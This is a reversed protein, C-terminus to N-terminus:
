HGASIVAPFRKNCAKKPSVWGQPWVPLATCGRPTSRIRQSGCAPTLHGGGGQAASAGDQQSRRHGPHRQRGTVASEPNCARAPHTLRSTRGTDAHPNAPFPLWAAGLPSGAAEASSASWCGAGALCLVPISLLFVARFCSWLSIQMTPHLPTGTDSTPEVELCLAKPSAPSLQCAAQQAGFWQM